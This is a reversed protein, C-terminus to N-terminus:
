LTKLEKMTERYASFVDNMWGNGKGMPIEAKSILQKGILSKLFESVAKKDKCLAQSQSLRIIHTTQGTCPINSTECMFPTVEGIALNAKNAINMFKLRVMITESNPFNMAVVKRLSITSNERFADVLYYEEGMRIRKIYPNPKSKLGSDRMIYDSYYEGLYRKM